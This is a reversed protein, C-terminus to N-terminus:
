LDTEGRENSIYCKATNREINSPNMDFKPKNQDMETKKLLSGLELRCLECIAGCIASHQVVDLLATEGREFPVFCKATNREVNSNNMDFKAEYQEM